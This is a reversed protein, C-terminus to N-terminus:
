EGYSCLWFYGLLSLTLVGAVIVSLVPHSVSLLVALLVLVAQLLLFPLLVQRHTLGGTVARQYFHSRHSQWFKEGHLLRLILTLTADALFYMPLIIAAAIYGQAATQLLLGGLLFGLALSGADGMFIKAPPFNWLAFGAVVATLLFALQDGTLWYVGLGIAIAQAAALGDLGDMFNYLNIFWLWMILAPLFWIAGEGQLPWAQLLAILTFLAQAALRTRISLGSRDDLWGVGAMGLALIIFQVAKVGFQGMLALLFVTLSLVFMFAFGGGRPMPAEHLSRENPHDLISASILWLRIFRTTLYSALAALIGLLALTLENM